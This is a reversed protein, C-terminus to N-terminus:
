ARSRTSMSCGPSATETATATPQATLTAAVGAAIRDSEETAQAAAESERTEVAQAVVTADATPEPATVGGACAALLALCCVMLGLSRWTPFYTTM